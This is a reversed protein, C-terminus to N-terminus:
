AVEAIVTLEDTGDGDEAPVRYASRGAPAAALADLWRALGRAAHPQIAADGAGPARELKVIEVIEVIEVIQARPPRATLAIAVGLAEPDAPEGRLSAPGQDGGFVLVEGASGAALEDLAQALGLWAQGAAGGLCACPERNALKMSLAALALNDVGHLTHIPNVRLKGGGGRAFIASGERLAARQAASGSRCPALAILMARAPDALAGLVRHAAALALKVPLNFRRLERWLAPDSAGTEPMDREIAAAALYASV